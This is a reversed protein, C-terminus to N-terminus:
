IMRAFNSRVINQQFARGCKADSREMELALLFRSLRHQKIRGLCGLGSAFIGVKPKSAREEMHSLILAEKEPPIKNSKVHTRSLTKKCNTCRARSSGVKTNGHKYVHDHKQCYPCSILPFIM